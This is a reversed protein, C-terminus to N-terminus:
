SYVSVSLLNCNNPDSTGKSLTIQRRPNSYFLFCENSALCTTISYFIDTTSFLYKNGIQSVTFTTTIEVTKQTYHFLVLYGVNVLVLESVANEAIEFYEATQEGCGDIVYDFARVNEAFTPTM